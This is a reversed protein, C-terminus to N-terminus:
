SHTLPKLPFHVPFPLCTAAASPLIDHTGVPVSHATVRRVVAWGRAAGQPTGMAGESGLFGTSRLHLGLEEIPHGLSLVAELEPVLFIQAGIQCLDKGGTHVCGAM